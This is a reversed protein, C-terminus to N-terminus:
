RGAVIFRERALAVSSRMTTLLEHTRVDVAGSGGGAGSVRYAITGTGLCNVGRGPSSASSRSVRMTSGSVLLLARRATASRRTSGSRAADPSGSGITGLGKAIPTSAGFLVAALLANAVGATPRAHSVRHDHPHSDSM